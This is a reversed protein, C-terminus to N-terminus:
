YRELDHGVVVRGKFGGKRVGQILDKDTAKKRVIHTLILLKPKIRAALAGLEVDSTHFERLYRVWNRDDESSGTPVESEPYVEHVLVDVGKAAQALSECPRTDGSIVVSRDPTDFRYGYAKRWNGHKVPFATVRVGHNNYVPGECIEHVDVKCGEAPLGELGDIRVRIDEAYAEMLHDTMRKLGSPGYVPMPKKRGMVWSTFILDPYGLTHDSHLHTLFLATPGDIPLEAARLQCETGPGADVVFVRSGVKVATSPGSAKPDPRPMGTGLLIVSTSEAELMKKMEPSQALAAAWGGAVCAVAIALILRTKM